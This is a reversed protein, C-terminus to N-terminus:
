IGMAERLLQVQRVAYVYQARAEAMADVKKVPMQDGRERHIVSLAELAELAKGKHDVEKMWTTMAVTLDRKSMGRYTMAQGSEAM